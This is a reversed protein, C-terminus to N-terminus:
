GKLGSLMIGNVFYKQTLIYLILTPLVNVVAGAMLLTYPTDYQRQTFAAIALTMTMKELESLYILPLLFDNWSFIFTFVALTALTPGSMPLYVRLLIQLQSAGDIVAADAYEKPITMFHQRLLFTGFAGGFFAPVILPLHTNVWGLQRMLLFTPIITVASPVMLTIILAGFWFRKGPFEMTAFAYAALSCSVFQGLIVITAIYSSNWLARLFPFAGFVEVYNSWMIPNPILTPPFLRAQGELKLSTSIMWVFPLMVVV